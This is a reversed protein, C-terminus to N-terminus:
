QKSTEVQSKHSRSPSLLIDQVEPLDISEQADRLTDPLSSINRQFANTDSM